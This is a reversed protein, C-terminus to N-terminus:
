PELRRASSKFSEIARLVETGYEKRRAEGGVPELMLGARPRPVEFDEESTWMPRSVAAATRTEALREMLLARESALEACRERAAAAEEGRARARAVAEDREREMGVRMEREARLERELALERRRADACRQIVAAVKAKEEAALTAITCRHLAVHLTEGGRTMRPPPTMPAVKAARLVDKAPVVVEGDSEFTKGSPTRDLSAARPADDMSSSTENADSAM